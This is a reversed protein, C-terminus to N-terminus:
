GYWFDGIKTVEFDKPNQYSDSVLTESTSLFKINTFIKLM